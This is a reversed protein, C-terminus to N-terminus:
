VPRSGNGFSTKLWASVLDFHFYKKEADEMVDAALKSRINYRRPIQAKFPNVSVDPDGGRAGELEALEMGVPIVQVHAIGTRPGRRKTFKFRVDGGLASSRVKGAGQDSEFIIRVYDLPVGNM